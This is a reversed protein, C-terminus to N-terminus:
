KSMCSFLAQPLVKQMEKLKWLSYQFPLSNISLTLHQVLRMIHSPQLLGCPSNKKKNKKCIKECKNLKSTCM